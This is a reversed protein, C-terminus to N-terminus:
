PNAIKYADAAQYYKYLAAVANTLTEDASTKNLCAYVYSMASVNVTSTSNTTTIEVKYADGLQHASIGPTIVRYRGDSSLTAATTEGNVTVTVSGTYGDVPQIYLYISTNSDLALSYTVKSIDSNLNKVIAYQAADNKITAADFSTVYPNTMGTYKGNITWGRLASLYQQSYYGYDKMAKILTLESDNDKHVEVFTDIYQQVSYTKVVTHEIGDVTYHYTATITDAMQISNVYCTFGYYEDTKNKFDANYDVRRDSVTTGVDFTMYSAARVDESLMSLDMFFNVGIEGSLRLSQVKFAPETAAATVTFDVNRYDSTDKLNQLIVYYDGAQSVDMVEDSDEPGVFYWGTIQYDQEETLTNGQMDKVTVTPVYSTGNFVLPDVTIECDALRYNVDYGLAFTKPTGGYKSPCTETITIQYYGAKTIEAVETGADFDYITVTYDTGEIFEIVTATDEFIDYETYTVSVKPTFPEGRWAAKFIGTSEMEGPTVVYDCSALEIGTFASIATSAPMSRPVKYNGMGEVTVSRLDSVVKYDVDKTLVKSGCHVTPNYPDPTFNIGTIDAASIGFTDTQTGMYNGIGTITATATGVNVNNEYTITYDVGEELIKDGDKLYIPRLEEGTYVFTDHYWIMDYTLATQNLIYTIVAEGNVEKIEYQQNDSVFHSVGNIGGNSLGSTITVSTDATLTDSTHVGIIATSDLAGVVNIVTNPNSETCLYLNDAQSIWSMTNDRIIISGSVELTNAGFRGHTFYVGGGNLAAENGTISGGTLRLLDRNDAAYFYIGGGTSTATNDTISGGSFAFVGEDMEVGGGFEATNATISGDSMTFSSGYTLSVGGGNKASNGTITGGNMVFSGDRAVYVAGGRVANNGSLTGSNLTFSGNANVFVAGGGNTSYANSNNGGTITGTGQVTLSGQVQIVYGDATAETLGRNLTYGNLDLTVTAGAPVMLFTDDTTATIDANLTITSDAVTFYDNTDVATGGLASNLLAWAENTTPVPDPEDMLSIATTSGATLTLDFTYIGSEEGFDDPEEENILVSATKMCLTYAGPQLGTLDEQSNVTLTTGGYYLSDFQEWAADSFTIACTGETAANNNEAAVAWTPMSSMIMCFALIISLWTKMKKM